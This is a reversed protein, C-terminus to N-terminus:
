MKINTKDKLKTLDPNKKFDEYEKDTLESLDYEQYDGGYPSIFAQPNGYILGQKYVRVVRM